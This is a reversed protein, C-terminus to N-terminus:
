RQVSQEAADRKIAFGEQVINIDIIHLAIGCVNTEEILFRRRGRQGVGLFAM